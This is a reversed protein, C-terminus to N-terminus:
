DDGSGEQGNHRGGPWWLQLNSGPTKFQAIRAQTEAKILYSEFAKAGEANIGAVKGPNVAIAVMLRQLVPDDAVLIEMATDPHNARYRLFPPAGWIVYAQKEEAFGIAKGKAVGTDLYWAGKDPNGARSLLINTLYTVGPLANAVFPAGSRAIKAMAETASTLGRIGAPDSKPGIIALQNAFVAKPWGGYGDLVFREVDAKGYHSIVLDAKGARAQAYVDNGSYIEVSIGNETKFGAALEDILGTFKPTNVIALRVSKQGPETSADGAHAAFLPLVIAAALFLAGRLM